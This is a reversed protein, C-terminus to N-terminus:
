LAAVRDHRPAHNADGKKGRRAAATGSRGRDGMDPVRGRRCCGLSPLPGDWACSACIIDLASLYEWHMRECPTGSKGSGVSLGLPIPIRRLPMSGLEAWNRAECVAQRAKEGASQVRRPGPEPGGRGM